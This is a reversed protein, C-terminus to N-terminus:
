EPFAGPWSFFATEGAAAGPGPCAFFDASASWPLGEECTAGAEGPTFGELVVAFFVSAGAADFRVFSYPFPL